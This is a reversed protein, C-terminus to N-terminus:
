NATKDSEHQNLRNLKAEIENTSQHGLIKKIKPRLRSLKSHNIIHKVELLSNSQVSFHELGMGLLLRTYQTNSAMEGCLSVPIHAHKGADITMQILKLVAPDYKKASKYAMGM